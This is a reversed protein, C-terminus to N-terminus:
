QSSRTVIGRLIRGVGDAGLFAHHSARQRIDTRAMRM